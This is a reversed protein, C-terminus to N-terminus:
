GDKWYKSTHTNNRAQSSAIPLILLASPDNTRTETGVAEECYGKQVLKSGCYGFLCDEECSSGAIEGVYIGKTDGKHELDPRLGLGQQSDLQHRM